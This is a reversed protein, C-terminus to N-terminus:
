FSHNCTPLWKGLHTHPYFKDGFGFGFEREEEGEGEGVGGIVREWEM